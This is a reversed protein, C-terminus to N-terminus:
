NGSHEPMRGKAEIKVSALPRFAISAFVSSRINWGDRGSFDPSHDPGQWSGAGVVSWMGMEVWIRGPSESEHAAQCHFGQVSLKEVVSGADGIGCGVQGDFFDSFQQSLFCWGLLKLTIVDLLL